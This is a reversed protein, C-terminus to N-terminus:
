SSTVSEIVTDIAGGVLGELVSEFEAKINILEQFPEPIISNIPELVPDTLPTVVKLLFPMVIKMMVERYYAVTAKNADVGFRQRVDSKLKQVAAEAAAGNSKIAPQTTVEQELMKEFTYVAMDLIKSLTDNAESILTGPDIDDFFQQLAWLPAEMADVRKFANRMLSPNRPTCDLGSFHPALSEGFGNRERVTRELHVMQGDFVVRTEKFADTMPSILIEIIGALRPTVKESLVPNITKLVANQIKEKIKEKAQFIPEIKSRIVGEIRSRLANVATEMAKYAPTVAAMVMTDLVQLVKNKITMRLGAPGKINQFIEGLMTQDLEDVILDSLIQTESGGCTWSDWHGLEQRTKTIAKEFAAVAVPDTSNFGECHRCCLDFVRAWEEKEQDNEAQMFYCRRREHHAEWSFDPYTAVAPLDGADMGMKAALEQARALLDKALDTSLSYGCLSITKKVKGGKNYIEESEYYDIKFNPRVVFFRRLWKKRVSGQKMLYGTKLPTTLSDEPREMLQWEEGKGQKLEEEIHKVLAIAYAKTYELTFTKLITEMLEKIKTMQEDSVPSAFPGVGM